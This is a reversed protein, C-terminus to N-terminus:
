PNFMGPNWFDLINKTIELNVLAETNGADSELAKQYANIAQGWEQNKRCINGKLIWFASDKEGKFQGLLRGAKEVEGKELLIKIESLEM